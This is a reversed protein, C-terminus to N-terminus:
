DGRGPSAVSASATRTSRRWPWRFGDATGITRWTRRRRPRTGSAKRPSCPATIPTTRSSRGTGVSGSATARCSHRRTRKCSPPTLRYSAQFNADTGYSGAPDGGLQDYTSMDAPFDWSAALTFVGPHKLILDQGGIGSKSFGMLWNQGTGTTALNAKVWPVLENVMFTEEQESPNLPNDAYWPQIVFSPEIMTLNYQNQVNASEMTQIADGFSSGEGAKVPLAFLFNHAVGPAPNTPKLIRLPQPGSGDYDSIVDYTAVGTSDTSLYHVEFGATGGAWNAAQANGYAM